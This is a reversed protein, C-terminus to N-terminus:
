LLPGTPEILGALNEANEGETFEPNIKRARDHADSLPDELPEGGPQVLPM